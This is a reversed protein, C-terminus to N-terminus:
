CREFVANVKSGEEKCCRFPKEPTAQLTGIKACSPCIGLEMLFIRLFLLFRSHLHLKEQLM